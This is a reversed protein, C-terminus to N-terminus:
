LNTLPLQIVNAMKKAKRIGYVVENVKEQMRDYQVDNLIKNNYLFDVHNMFENYNKRDSKRSNVIVKPKKLRKNLSSIFEKANENSDSRAEDITFLPTTTNAYYYSYRTTQLKLSSMLFLASVAIFCFGIFQQIPVNITTALIIFVIGIVLSIISAFVLQRDKTKSIKPQPDILDLPITEKNNKGLSIDLISLNGSDISYEQRSFLSCNNFNLIDISNHHM